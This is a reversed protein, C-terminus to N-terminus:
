MLQPWGPLTIMSVSVAEPLCAPLHVYMTVHPRAPSGLPGWVGSWHLLQLDAGDEPLLGCGCPERPNPGSCWCLPAQDTYACVHARVCVACSPSWTDVDGGGNPYVFSAQDKAM